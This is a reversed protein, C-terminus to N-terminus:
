SKVMKQKIVFLQDARSINPHFRCQYEGIIKETVMMLCRNIVSYLIKYAVNLVIIGTNWSQPMEETIWIMTILKHIADIIGEGGILEVMIGDEGPARNNKTKQICKEIEENTPM